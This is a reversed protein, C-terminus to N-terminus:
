RTLLDAFASFEAAAVTSLATQLRFPGCWPLGWPSPDCSSFTWHNLASDARASETGLVLMTDWLWRDTVRSELFVQHGTRSEMASVVACVLVWVWFKKISYYFLGWIIFLVHFSLDIAVLSFYISGVFHHPESFAKKFSSPQSGLHVFKSFNRWDTGM